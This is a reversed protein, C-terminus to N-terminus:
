LVDVDGFSGPILKDLSVQSRQQLRLVCICVALIKKQAPTLQQLLAAGM